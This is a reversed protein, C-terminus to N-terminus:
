QPAEKLEKRSSRCEEVAASWIHSMGAAATSSAATSSENRKWQRLEEEVAATATSSAM